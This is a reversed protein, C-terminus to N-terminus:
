KNVRKVILNWHEGFLYGPSEDMETCTATPSQLVMGFMLRETPPPILPVDVDVQILYRYPDMNGFFYEIFDTEEQKTLTPDYKALQGVSTDVPMWGYNPLYIQAWFHTGCGTGKPNPFLQYGGASRAPIGMARCLAAFYMSQAGCDGYGHEQVYVSEPIDLADLAGHPTLSYDLDYVIHDYFKKAIFFPNTESGAIEKAKKIIDPTVAINKDSATYRKYLESEKDYEGLYYPDVHFREEYHTFNFRVGMKLDDYIEELPVEFYVLGIDGDTKIPYRIYQEPYIDIIELNQQASSVLPLPMWVKLLGTEPLKDRPIVVEGTAAYHFPTTLTQGPPLNNGEYIFEGMLGLLKSQQGLAGAQKVVRFDPYLHYLTNLFDEFYYTQGEITMHPLRGDKIIQEIREDTADPYNKKIIKVVEDLKLPYTDLINKIRTFARRCEKVQDEKEEKVLLPRAEKYLKFASFYDAKKEQQQAERFLKEGSTAALTTTSTFALCLAITLM